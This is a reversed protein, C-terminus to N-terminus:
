CIRSSSYHPVPWVASLRSIPDRRQCARKARAEPHRHQGQKLQWPPREICPTCNRDCLYPRSLSNRSKVKSTHNCHVAAACTSTACHFSGGFPRYALFPTAIPDFGWGKLAKILTPQSADVVVRKEDLMLVNISTWRSCMSVRSMFGKVPDRRPAVLIDWSKLMPPLREVDVYDPNVLVKGPCLPMFSSDIHMPQPCRTEIEHVRFGPGLHRRLWAIGMLNTVNSRTVFLDCGCRVFDAADFVPEFESITYRMAEGEKLNPERYTYNYLADTLQPRPASTWRAGARFYEKFLPRYASGEFYRTRWCMPSEIIEDGVILYPDRPCAVCFGRASWDPSRFRRKFDIIEPRRVKIHEGELIRIFGDLEKQAAADVDLPAGTPPADTPLRDKATFRRTAERLRSEADILFQGSVVVSEGAALGDLVQVVGGEGVAGLRVTRPEFRGGGLAIWVLQREGTDLVADAPILLAKAETRTRVRVSAFMGPQLAGDDNPLDLRATATRTREDVVPV